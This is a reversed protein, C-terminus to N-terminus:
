NANSVLVPTDHYKRSQLAKKGGKKMEEYEKVLEWYAQCFDPIPGDRSAAALSMILLASIQYMASEAKRRMVPNPIVEEDRVPARYTPVANYRKEQRYRKIVMEEFTNPNFVQFSQAATLQPVSPLPFKAIQRFQPPRHYEDPTPPFNPAMAPKPDRFRWKAEQIPREKKQRELIHTRYRSRQEEWDISHLNTM